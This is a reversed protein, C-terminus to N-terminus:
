WDVSDRLEAALEKASDFRAQPDKATARAFWADFGAPVGAVASPALLRGNAALQLVEGLDDSPFPFAGTFCELAIIGMAYIDTRFDVTAGIAQEPSMYHPTGLITGITTAGTLAAGPANKIKAIGFDFVKVMDEGDDDRVLFINAPKLDRHVIGAAHAKGAAKAIQEIVRCLLKGDLRRARDLRSGLTEGELLEMAIYPTAEHLGHDLIQVVHLSRLKAAARAERLFRKAVPSGAFAPDLLKVAVPADLTTDLARWVEAAGGEGLRARLRYRGAITLGPHWPLRSKM